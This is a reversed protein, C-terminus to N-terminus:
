SPTVGMTESKKGSPKKSAQGRPFANPFTDAIAELQAALPGLDYTNSAILGKDRRKVRKILNMGELKALARLVQRESTGCRTALTKVSPFPLKDKEWWTASIQVLLLLDLPSLSNDEDIFQNIFLLYNPTQSFGRSAVKEGWKKVVDTAKTMVGGWVM